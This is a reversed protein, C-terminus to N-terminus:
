TLFIARAVITIAPIEIRKNLFLEDDSNFKIKMHKVDYNDSNSTESKILNRIEIRLEELKKFKEKSKNTLVLTLYKTGNIKEFYGNLYRFTLYLLNM